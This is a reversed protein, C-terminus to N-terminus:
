AACACSIIDGKSYNSVRDASFSGQEVMQCARQGAQVDEYLREREELRLVIEAVVKAIVVAIVGELM